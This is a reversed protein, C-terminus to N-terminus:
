HNKNQNSHNCTTHSRHKSYGYRHSSKQNKHTHKKKTNKKPHSILISTKNENQTKYHLCKVKTPVRNYINKKCQQSQTKGTKICARFSTCSLSTSIIWGSMQEHKTTFNGTM